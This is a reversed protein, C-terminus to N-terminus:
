LPLATSRFRQLGIKRGTLRVDERIQNRYEGFTFSRYLSAAATGTSSSSQPRIVTDHSPCLFFAVSFRELTANAMVRHEVSRYLDNSWAQLLDGINVILASPNPKVNLWRAAKLLQLGGIRDQHLITLFDSDTHPCLGFAGSATGCSPYRNLRLFCTNRKRMCRMMESVRATGQEEEGDGLDRILISALQQALQSMATSVEEIVLRTKDVTAQDAAAAPTIPIHYAESWSLQELCTATPTGWRYSESSFDLLREDVKREFPRRFVGVLADHLRDLLAQPVGHNTVQFFGWESAAHVIDARCLEASEGDLLALDIVPLDCEHDDSRDDADLRHPHDDFLHKYTAMLPPNSADM